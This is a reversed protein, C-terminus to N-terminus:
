DFLMANFVFQVYSKPERSKECDGEGEVIENWDKPLYGLINDGGEM